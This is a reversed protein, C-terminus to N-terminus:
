LYPSLLKATGDRLKVAFSRAALAELTLPEAHARKEAVIQRLRQVLDADYCELNFEFNHYLSRPDFNASGIFAWTDDVLMIKSHDFPPPTLWVNCHRELLQGVTAWSAWQVLRLNGKRPMLINVAVGSMAKINLLTIMADDPLFYPTVITIARKAESLAAMIVLRMRDYDEDPGGTIGRAAVSGAASLPPFWREDSLVEGETFAWDEAFVNMMQEVVPGEVRFHLDQIGDREPDGLDSLVHGRRINIGGTFGIKGDVVMIKRHNRLNLYAMRWPIFSHLFEAVPVDVRSLESMIRPFSYRAGVSDVLIRVEVGRAAARGLAAAFERGVRDNDFIYTSLAISREAGAIAALMAPYTEDGDKLPEIRNGNTLPLGTVNGVMEMLGAAEHAGTQGRRNQRMKPHIPMPRLRTAKRRIRNIGFVVYLLTGVFPALWVTGIWGMAGRPDRRTMTIHVTALVPMIVALAALTSTLWPFDPGLPIM